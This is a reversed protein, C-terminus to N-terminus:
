FSNIYGFHVKASRLDIPSGNQRGLATNITFMGVATQFAIGAGAGTPLDRRYLDATKQEYWAQDIFAFLFSTNDLFFRFEATFIGFSSALISEEDFGRLQRLGGIRFLENQFINQAIRIGGQAMNLLTFRRGLPLYYQLIGLGLWQASKLIVGDYLSANVLPNPIIRRTGISLDADIYLGQRPMLRDDLNIIEAGFTYFLTRTDNLAPRVTTGEYRKQDLVTYQQNRWAAKIANGRGLMYRFGLRGDVELFTTDRKYIKLKVDPTFATNLLYPYQFTVQLDQTQTQLRRWNVDILEGRGIANKLNLRLDGTITLNQNIPDPLIGIVGNAYSAKTSKIYLYLHAKSTDFTIEAPKIQRMFGSGKLAASINEIRQENYRDGEKVGILSKVLRENVKGESKLIISDIRYSVGQDIKLVAHMGDYEDRISDLHVKVFPHGNNGCWKAIRNMANGLTKVNVPKNSFMKETVDASKAIKRVSPNMKVSAWQYKPGQYVYWTITDSNPLRKVSDISAALYGKKRAYALWSSSTTKEESATIRKPFGKDCEHQEHCVVKVNLLQANGLVFGLTFLLCLWYRM